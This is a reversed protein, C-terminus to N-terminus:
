KAAAPAPTPAPTSVPAPAPAAAPQRNPFTVLGMAGPNRVTLGTETWSYVVLKGTVNRLRRVNLFCGRDAYRIGAEQWPLSFQVRWGDKSPLIKVQASSNWTLDDVPDLAPLLPQPFKCIEDAMVGKSNAILQIMNAPGNLPTLYVEVCDDNWVQSDRDVYRTFMKAPEPEVCEVDITVATENCTLNWRTAPIGPVSAAGGKMCLVPANPPLEPLPESLTPIALVPIPPHQGCGAMWCRGQLFQRWPKVAPSDPVQEWNALAEKWQGTQTCYYAATLHLSARQDPKLSKEPFTQVTREIIQQVTNTSADPIEQAMKLIGTLLAWYNIKASLGPTMKFFTEQARVCNKEKLAEAVDNSLGEEYAKHTLADRVEDISKEVPPLQDYRGLERYKDRLGEYAALAGEDSPYERHIQELLELVREKWQLESSLRWVEQLRQLKEPGVPMQRVIGTYEDLLKRAEVSNEASRANQILEGYATGLQGINKTDALVARLSQIRRRSSFRMRKAEYAAMALNANVREEPTKAAAIAKVVKDEEAQQTTRKTFFDDVWAVGTQGRLVVTDMKMLHRLSRDSGWLAVCAIAFFLGLLLKTKV